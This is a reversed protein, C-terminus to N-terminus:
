RLSGRDPAGRPSGLDTKLKQRGAFGADIEHWWSVAPEDLRWCLYVVRDDMWCPFDVLGLFHDKLQVGLRTLEDEYEQLQDGLREFEDEAQEMEEQHALSLSSEQGSARYRQLREYRDRLDLALTTIDRVIARVLPLTSNAEQVTFLKRSSSPQRVTM